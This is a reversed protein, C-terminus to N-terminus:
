PRKQRFPVYMPYSWPWMLFSEHTYNLFVFLIDTFSSSYVFFVWCTFQTEPQTWEPRAHLPWSFVNAEESFAGNLQQEFLRSHRAFVLLM